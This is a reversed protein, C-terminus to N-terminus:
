CRKTRPRRTVYRERGHSRTVASTSGFRNEGFIFSVDDCKSKLLCPSNVQRATENDRFRKERRDRLKITTMLLHVNRTMFM